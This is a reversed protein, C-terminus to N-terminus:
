SRLQDGELLSRAAALDQETDIDLTLDEAPVAHADILLRRAGTDGRLQLLSTFATAPFYAPVGISGGYSSGTVRSADEILARLHDARLSPQDCSLIVAGAIGQTSGLAIGCRISSAIGEEAELNIAILVPNDPQLSTSFHTGARTVVIIPSLSAERAVRVVRELLTEGGIM